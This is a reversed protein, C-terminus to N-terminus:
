DRYYYSGYNAEVGHRSHKNAMEGEGEGEGECENMPVDVYGEEQIPESKPEDTEDLMDLDRDFNLNDWYNYGLDKYAETEEEIKKNDRKAQRKEEKLSLRKMELKNEENIINGLEQWSLLGDRVVQLIQNHDKFSRISTNNKANYKRIFRNFLKVFWRQLRYLVLFRYNYWPLVKLGETIIDQFHQTIKENIYSDLQSSTYTRTPKSKFIGGSDSKIQPLIYENENDNDSAGAGVKEDTLKLNGFLQDLKMRKGTRSETPNYDDDSDYDLAHKRNSM